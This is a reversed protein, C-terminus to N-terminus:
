LSSSFAVFSVACRQLFSSASLLTWQAGSGSQARSGSSDVEVELKCSQMRCELQGLTARGISGNPDSDAARGRVVVGKRITGDNNAIIRDVCLADFYSKFKSNKNEFIIQGM